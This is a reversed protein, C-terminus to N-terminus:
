IMLATALATRAAKVAASDTAISFLEVLRKRLAEKEDADGAENIATLLLEFAQAELGQAFLLDAQTAVGDVDEPQSEQRSEFQARALALKAEQDSPNSALVKKWAAIAGEWDGEDEAERAPGHEPPMPTELEDESVALTGTVGLQPAVQLLETLVQELQTTSPPGEFLPVPNRALIAMGTPLTQIQFAQALQPAQEVNVKGLQFKGGSARAAAEVTTLTQKSVLSASSYLVLVVPVTQSLAMVSEFNADTVDVILPANVAGGVPAQPALGPAPASVAEATAGQATGQSAGPALHSLDFAGSQGSVFQNM